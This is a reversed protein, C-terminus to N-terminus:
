IREFEDDLQDADGLNLAIGTRRAGRGTHSKQAVGAPRAVPPHAKKARARGDEEVKFFGITDQLREAQGSLEETTAAM